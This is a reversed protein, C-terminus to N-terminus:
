QYKKLIRHASKIVRDIDKGVETGNGNQFGEWGKEKCGVNAKKDLIAIVRSALSILEYYSEPQEPIMKTDGKQM